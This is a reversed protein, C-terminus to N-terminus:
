EQRSKAAQNARRNCRSQSWNRQLPQSQALPAPGASQGSIIRLPLPQAPRRCNGERPGSPVSVVWYSVSLAGERLMAILFRLMFSAGTLAVAAVVWAAWM